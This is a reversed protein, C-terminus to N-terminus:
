GEQIGRLVQPAISLMSTAKGDTNENKGFATSQPMFICGAAETLVIDSNAEDGAAKVLAQYTLLANQRHKNVVANHKSALFNKASLGLIFSIATFILIKSVTLQVTEYTNEPKLWDCKHILLVFIAYALLTTTLGITAKLWKTAGEEYKEAEQKFYIAQQSVGQEAAVKRITDLISNAEQSKEEMQSQIEDVKDNISQVQARAERELKDFDTSKRISYSIHPQLIKFTSDYANIIRNILSDRNSQPTGAEFKLIQDFLNYDNDAQQRIGTLFDNPLANLVEVALQKYIDILRNVPEVAETFNIQTGLEEVRPITNADFQQMRAVSNKTEDILTQREDGNAM